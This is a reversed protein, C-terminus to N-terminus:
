RFDLFTVIENPPVIVFDNDHPGQVMREFLSTSGHIEEYRLGFRDAVDRCYERCPELEYQGTDILALSEAGDVLYVCCDNGHSIDPGGVQYVRNCVKRPQKVQKM